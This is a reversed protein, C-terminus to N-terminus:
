CRIVDEIQAVTHELLGGCECCWGKEKACPVCFRTVRSTPFRMELHCAGCLRTTLVASGVKLGELYHCTLCRQRRRRTERDPDQLLQQVHRQHRLLREKTSLEVTLLSETSLSAKPMQM